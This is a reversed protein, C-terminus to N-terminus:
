AAPIIVDGDTCHVTTISSEETWTDEKIIANWQEVTGEYNIVLLNDCMAFAWGGIEVVSNPITISTLSKCEPFAGGDIITVSNPLVISDM